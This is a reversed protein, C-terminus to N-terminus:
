AMSCVCVWVGTYVCVCMYILWLNQAFYKIRLLIFVYIYIYIHYMRNGLKYHLEPSSFNVCIYLHRTYMKWIIRVVSMPQFLKGWIFYSHPTLESIIWVRTEWGWQRKIICFDSISHGYTCIEWSFKMILYKERSIIKM